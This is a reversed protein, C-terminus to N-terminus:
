HDFELNTSVDEWDDLTQLVKECKGRVDRYADKGMFLWMPWERGVAQGEGRVVDVLLEMAKEPDGKEYGSISNFRARGKERLKDYSPIHKHVTMPQSLASTRFSGPIVVTVRISFQALEASYTEGLALISSLSVAHMLPRRVHKGHVAAKSAAYFGAFM